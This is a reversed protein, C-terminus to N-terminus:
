EEVGSLADQLIESLYARSSEDMGLGLGGHRAKGALWELAVGKEAPTLERYQNIPEYVRIWEVCLVCKESDDAYDEPEPEGGWGGVALNVLLHAQTYKMDRPTKRRIVEVGDFLWVIYERDWEVAYTHFENCLDAGTVIENGTSSVMIGSENTHMSGHYIGDIVGKVAEMIDIEPLKAIGAPWQGDILLLWFAPWAGRSSPLMCRIEWLGGVQEFKKHTTLLGSLYPLEFAKEREADTLDPGYEEMDAKVIGMAQSQFEPPTLSARIQLGLENLTFPSYEPFRGRDVYYQQEDNIIEKRPWIYSTNFEDLDDMSRFDYDKALTRETMHNDRYEHRITKPPPEM